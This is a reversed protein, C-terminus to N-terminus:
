QDRRPWAGTRELVWRRAPSMERRRTAPGLSPLTRLLTDGLRADISIPVAKISAATMATTMKTTALRARRPPATHWQLSNTDCLPAPLSLPRLQAVACGSEQNSSEPLQPDPSPPTLAPVVTSKHPVNVPTIVNAPLPLLPSRIVSRTWREACIRIGAHGSDPQM